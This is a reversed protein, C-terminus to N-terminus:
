TPNVSQCYNNQTHKRPMSILGSIPRFLWIQCKRFFIATVNIGMLRTKKKSFLAFQNKRLTLSFSLIGHEFRPFHWKRAGSKLIEGGGLFIAGEASPCSRSKEGLKWVAHKTKGKCKIVSLTPNLGTYFM